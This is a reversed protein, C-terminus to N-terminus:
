ARGGDLTPADYRCVECRRMGPEAEVDGPTLKRRLAAGDLNPCDRDEHAVAGKM